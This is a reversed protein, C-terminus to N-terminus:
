RGDSVVVAQSAVGIARLGVADNMIGIQLEGRGQRIPLKERAEVTGTDM